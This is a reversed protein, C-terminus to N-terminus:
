GSSGTTALAYLYEPRYNPKSGAFMLHTESQRAFGLARLLAACASNAAPADCLVKTGGAVAALATTIVREAADSDLAAWPGIQMADGAPQLVVGASAEAVVTGRGTVWELLFERRDGWCLSDLSEDFRGPGDSGAADVTGPTTGAWRIIHDISKFGQKEYLPRGMASATLWITAAGANQLATLAQTFLAKGIGAGRCDPRVVLNGIWGGRDHRFSSVFGVAAGTEDQMCFCGDPFATLLFDLEYPDTVWRETAALDLFQEIEAKHFPKIKM